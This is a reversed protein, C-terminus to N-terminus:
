QLAEYIERWIEPKKESDSDSDSALLSGNEINRDLTFGTGDKSLVLVRNGLKLAEQLDHTVFVTAPKTEAWLDQTLRHLIDRKVIDLGMFPEDLLVVPKEHPNQSSVDLMLFARILSARSRMGGSLKHSKLHLHEGLGARTLVDTARQRFSDENMAAPKALEVNELVSLWPLLPARQPAFAIRTPGRISGSAVAVEKMIARLLTSKGAGSPGLLSVFEGPQITLSLNRLIFHGEYEVSIKDVELAANGRIV